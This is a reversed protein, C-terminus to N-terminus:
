GCAGVCVFENEHCNLCDERNWHETWVNMGENGYKVMGGGGLKLKMQHHPLVLCQCEDMNQCAQQLSEPFEQLARTGNLHEYQSQCKVCAGFVPHFRFM